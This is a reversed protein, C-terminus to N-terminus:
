ESRQTNASTRFRRRIKFASVKLLWERAQQLSPSCHTSLGLLNMAEIWFLFRISLFESICAQLFEGDQQATAGSARNLHRTWYRCCYRLVDGINEEVRLELDPVEVDLLFSSPLNCINFVLHSEMVRFCSRALTVQQAVSDCSM